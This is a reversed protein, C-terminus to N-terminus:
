LSWFSMVHYCCFLFIQFCPAIAAVENSVSSIRSNNAPSMSKAGISFMTDRTENVVTGVFLEEFGSSQLTEILENVQFNRPIFNTPPVSTGNHRISLILGPSSSYFFFSLVSVGQVIKSSVAVDKYTSGDRSSAFSTVIIESSSDALNFYKDFM